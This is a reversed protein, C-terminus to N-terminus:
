RIGQLGAGSDEAGVKFKATERRAGHVVVEELYYLNGFYLIASSEQFIIVLVNLPM